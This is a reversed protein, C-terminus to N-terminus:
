LIIYEANHVIGGLSFPLLFLQDLFVQSRSVGIARAPSDLMEATGRPASVICETISEVTEIWGHHESLNSGVALHEM